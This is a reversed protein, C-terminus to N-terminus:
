ADGEAEALTDFVRQVETEAHEIKQRCIEILDAARGVSRALDDLDVDNREIDTLIAEIEQMAAGFSPIEENTM